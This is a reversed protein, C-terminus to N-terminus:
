GGVQETEECVTRNAAKFLTLSILGKTFLKHLKEPSGGEKRCALIEAAVLKLNKCQEEM